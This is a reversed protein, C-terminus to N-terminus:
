LKIVYLPNQATLDGNTQIATISVRIPTWTLHAVHQFMYQLHRKMALAAAVPEFGAYVMVSDFSAKNAAELDGYEGREFALEFPFQTVLNVYWKQSQRCFLLLV